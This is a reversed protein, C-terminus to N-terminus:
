CDQAYSEAGSRLNRVQVRVAVVLIIVLIVTLVSIAALDNKYQKFDM